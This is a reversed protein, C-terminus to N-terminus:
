QETKTHSQPVWRMAPAGSLDVDWRYGCQLCWCAARTPRILGGTWVSGYTNPPTPLLDNLVQHVVRTTGCDPCTNPNM